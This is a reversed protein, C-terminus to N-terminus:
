LGSTNEIVRFLFAASIIKSRNNIQINIYIFVKTRIQSVGQLPPDFFLVNRERNTNFRHGEIEFEPTSEAYILNNSPM